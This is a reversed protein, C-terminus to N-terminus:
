REGRSYRRCRAQLPNLSLLHRSIYPCIWSRDPEVIHLHYVVEKVLGDPNNLAAEAIRFLLATKGHVRQFDALLTKVLRRESRVSLRHVIQIFLEILGYISERQRCAPLPPVGSRCRAEPTELSTVSPYHNM